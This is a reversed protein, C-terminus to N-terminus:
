SREESYGGGDVGTQYVGSRRKNVEDGREDQFVPGLLELPAACLSFGPRDTWVGDPVGYSDAGSNVGRDLTSPVWRLQSWDKVDGKMGWQTQIGTSLM